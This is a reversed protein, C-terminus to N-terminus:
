DLGRQGAKNIGGKRETTDVLREMYGFAPAFGKPFVFLHYQNATDVRRWEAPYLEVAEQEPSTLTNKIDMLERWDHISEKDLRKISLYTMKGKLNKHLVMFDAKENRYVNVQYKDNMYCEANLVNDVFMRELERLSPTNITTTNTGLDTEAVDFRKKFIQFLDYKSKKSGDCLVAKKFPTM